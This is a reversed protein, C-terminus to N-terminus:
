KRHTISFTECPKRALLYSSIAALEEATFRRFREAVPLTALVSVARSDIEREERELAFGMKELLETYEPHRLRNQYNHSNLCTWRFTDDSFKLFNVRSIRKDRHEWHDSNDVFHCAVGGPKLLRFSEGFIEEIVAPPIHELVARSSVVDVSGDPLELHRCDCPALYKMRFRQLTEELDNGPDRLLAADVKEGSIGLRDLILEKQARLSALAAQFSAPRCLRNLDTLYICGAGALSFLIPIMPQWGSGIELVTASELRCAARVWEVQLLGQTITWRDVMPPDPKYPILRGKIERLQEQFPVVGKCGDIVCKCQWRM